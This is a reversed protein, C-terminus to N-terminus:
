GPPTRFAACPDGRDTVRATVVVMDYETAPPLPPMAGDASREVFGVSLARVEPALVRLLRPVAIDRRVHGNGAVLWPQGEARASLLADAMAADRVEQAARMGPLMPAPLHGCHGEILDADLLARAASDMPARSVIAGLDAPAAVGGQMVVDRLAERSVNSGRIARAKTLAADVLPAHLPWRWGERDFGHADLWATRTEGDAPRPIPAAARTFHEFVVAARNTGASALLAARVRHHAANDHLEGLLVVDAARLSDALAATSLTAGSRLDIVAVTDRPDLTPAPAARTAPACAAAVALTAAAAARLPLASM